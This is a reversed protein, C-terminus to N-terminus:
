CKCNIVSFPRPAAHNPFLNKDHKSDKKVVTSFQTVTKIEGLRLIECRAHDKEEPSEWRLIIVRIVKMM